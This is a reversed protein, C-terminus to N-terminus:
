NDKMTREDPFKHPDDVTVSLSYILRTGDATFEYFSIVGDKMGVTESDTVSLQAEYRVSESSPSVQNFNEDFYVGLLDRALLTNDEYLKHSITNVNGHEAYFCEALNNVEIVAHNEQIATKSITHSKAFMQACVAASLSFFLLCVIMEMLFLGSKSHKM